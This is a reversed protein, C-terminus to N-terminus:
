SIKKFLQRSYKQLFAEFGLLIIALVCSILIVLIKINEIYASLGVIIGAVFLELAFSYIMNINQKVVANESTWNLKPRLLDILLTFYNVFVNCLTGVVVISVLYGLSVSPIFYKILWVVYVLPIINVIIGPIAKYKYQKSLPVPIYKMFLANEGERSIATISMMNFMYFLNIIGIIFGFTFSQEIIKDASDAVAKFSTITEPDMGKFISISILIPFLFTPLVCQFLYIPTRFLEKFEKAVYTKLLSNKRATQMKLKRVRTSSASVKLASKIYMKSIIFTGAVYVGISEVALLGLNKFIIANDVETLVNLAQGITFFFDKVVSSIGNLELLKNAMVFDTVENSSVSLYQIAFIFVMSIIVSLYQVTDKNRLFGTFSMIIVIVLISILMPIIPILLLVLFSYLYFVSSLSLMRAYIIFPVMFIIVETLYNSILMVNFKAFVIKVPSIPMPLLYEVDKSFYLVNLGTFLTRFMIFGIIMLFSLSLFVEEQHIEQLVKIIEYSFYGFCGVLYGIAFIILLVSFVSIRKQDKARFNSGLSNKLLVKTLILIDKM